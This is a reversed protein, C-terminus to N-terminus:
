TFEGYDSLLQRLQAPPTKRNSLAKHAKAAWDKYRRAMVIGGVQVKPPLTKIRSELLVRVSDVAAPV